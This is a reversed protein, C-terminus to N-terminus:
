KTQGLHEFLMLTGWLQLDLNQGVQPLFAVSEHIFVLKLVRGLVVQCCIVKVM